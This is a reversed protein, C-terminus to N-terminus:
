VPPFNPRLDFTHPAPQCRTVDSISCPTAIAGVSNIDDALFLSLMVASNILTTLPDFYYTGWLLVGTVLASITAIAIFIFGGAYGFLIGSHVSTVSERPTASLCHIVLVGLVFIIFVKSVAILDPNNSFYCGCSAFMWFDFSGLLHIIIQDRMAAVCSKAIESCNGKSYNGM